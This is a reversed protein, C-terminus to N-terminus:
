IVLVAGSNTQMKLTGNSYAIVSVRLVTLMERKKEFPISVTEFAGDLKRCYDAFQHAIERTRLGITM